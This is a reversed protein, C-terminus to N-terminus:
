SNRLSYFYTALLILKTNLINCILHLKWDPYDVGCMHKIPYMGQQKLLMVTKSVGRVSGEKVLRILLFFIYSDRRCLIRERCKQPMGNEHTVLINSIYQVAYLFGEIIKARREPSRTTTTSNPREVYFYVDKDIHVISTANILVSLTFMGDECLKGEVFKISSDELYSKKIFYYTPANNYNYREIYEPGSMPGSIKESGVNTNLNRYSVEVGGRINYTIIQNEANQCQSELGNEVYRFISVLSNPFLFDDADVFCIYKGRSEDIGRNRAVSQGSNVQKIMKVEEYKQIYSAVIDPGQDTSGDNIIIIEFANRPLNQSLISDLCESIYKEANYM